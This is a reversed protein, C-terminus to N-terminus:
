AARRRRRRTPSAADPRTLQRRAREAMPHPTVAAEAEVDSSAAADVVAAAVVAAVAGPVALAPDAGVEPPAGSRARLSAALTERAQAIGAYGVRRTKEDLKWDPRTGILVLQKTM